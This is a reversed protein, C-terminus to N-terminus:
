RNALSTLKPKCGQKYYKLTDDARRLQNSEYGEQYVADGDKPLVDAFKGATVEIGHGVPIFVQLYAQTLDFQNIPHVTSNYGDLGNAHIIRGDSGYMMDLGFGIDWKGAKSRVSSRMRAM